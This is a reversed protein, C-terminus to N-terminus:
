RLQCGGRWAKEPQKSDPVMRTRLRCRVDLGGHGRLREPIPSKSNHTGPDAQTALEKLISVNTALYKIEAHHNEVKSPCMAWMRPGSCEVRRCLFAVRSDPAKSREAMRVSMQFQPGAYYVGNRASVAVIGLKVLTRGTM